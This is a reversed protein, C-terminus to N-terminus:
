AVEGNRRALGEVDLNPPGAAGAPQAVAAAAPVSATAPAVVDIAVNGVTTTTAAAGVNPCDGPCVGSREVRPEDYGATAPATVIPANTAAIGAAAAGIAAVIGDPATGARQGTTAGAACPVWSARAVATVAGRADATGAAIVRDGAATTAAAPVVAATTAAPVTPRLVGAATTTTTAAAVDAAEHPRRQRDVRRPGCRDRDGRHGRRRDGTGRRAHGARGAIALHGQAPRRGGRVAAARDRAVDHRGVDARGGLRGM